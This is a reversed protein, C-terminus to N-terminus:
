ATTTQRPVTPAPGTTIDYGAAQLIFLEVYRGHATILQDHTGSEVLRGHHLVFIRDAHRVNALRHTILITTGLAGPAADFGCALVVFRSFFDGDPAAGM